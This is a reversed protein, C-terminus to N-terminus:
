INEFNIKRWEELREYYSFRDASMIIELPEERLLQQNWFVLRGVRGNGDIFPHIAEFHAHSSWPKDDLTLSWWMEMYGKIEAAPPPYYNGVRVACHRYDGPVSGQPLPTDKFLVAHLVRPHALEGEVAAIDVLRAALLHNDLLPDGDVATIGEILNSEIVAKRPIIM